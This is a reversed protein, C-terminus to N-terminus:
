GEAATPRSPSKPRSIAWVPVHWLNIEPKTNTKAHVLLDRYSKAEFTRTNRAYFATGIVLQKLNLRNHLWNAKAAQAVALASHLTTM